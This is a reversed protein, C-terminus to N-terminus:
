LQTQIKLLSIKKNRLKLSELNFILNFSFLHISYKNKEEQSWQKENRDLLNNKELLILYVQVTQLRLVLILKINYKTNYYVIFKYRKKINM